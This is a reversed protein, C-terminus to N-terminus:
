RRPRRGRVHLLHGHTWHGGDHGALLRGLIDPRYAALDLDDGFM